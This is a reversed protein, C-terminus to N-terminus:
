SALLSLAIGGKEMGMRSVSICGRLIIWVDESPLFRIFFAELMETEMKAITLWLTLSEYRWHNKWVFISDIDSIIRVKAASIM